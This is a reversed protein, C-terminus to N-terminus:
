CLFLPTFNSCYAALHSTAFHITVGIKVGVLRVLNQMTIRNDTGQTSVWRALPKEHTTEPEPWTKFLAQTKPWLGLVLRGTPPLAGRWVHSFVEPVWHLKDTTMGSVIRSVFKPMISSKNVKTALKLLPYPSQILKSGCPFVSQIYIGSFTLQQAPLSRPHDKCSVFYPVLKCVYPAPKKGRFYHPLCFYIFYIMIIPM